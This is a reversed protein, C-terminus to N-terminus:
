ARKPATHTSRAQEQHQVNSTNSCSISASHSEQRRGRCSGQGLLLSWAHLENARGQRCSMGVRPRGGGVKQRGDAGHSRAVLVTKRVVGQRLAEAKGPCGAGVIPRSGDIGSQSGKRSAGLPEGGALRQRENGVPRGKEGPVGGIVPVAGVEGVVPLRLRGPVVRLVEPDVGGAQNLVLVLLRLFRLRLAGFVQSLTDIVDVKPLRLEAM